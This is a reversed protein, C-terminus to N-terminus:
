GGGPFHLSRSPAAASGTGTSTICSLSTESVPFVICTSRVNTSLSPQRLQRNVLSIRGKTNAWVIFQQIARPFSVDDSEVHVCHLPKKQHLVLHKHTAHFEVACPATYLRGYARPQISDCILRQHHKKTGDLFCVFRGPVLERRVHLVHQQSVAHCRYAM